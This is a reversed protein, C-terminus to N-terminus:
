YNKCRRRMALLAVLGGALLLLSGPEPVASSAEVRVDDLDFGWASHRFTFVLDTSSSSATATYSFVNYVAPLITSSTAIDTFSDLAIGGFSVSLFNPRVATNVWFEIDYSVGVTTGLTQTISGTSGSTSLFASFSGSRPSFNDVVTFSTDGSVTWGAFTGSEFGPNTVINDAQAAAAFSTALVLAAAAWRIASVIGTKNM